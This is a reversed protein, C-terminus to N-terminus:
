YTLRYYDYTRRDRHGRPRLRNDPREGASITPELRVPAHLRKHTNHTNDPLPGQSSSIVRVSSDHRSQHTTTHSRSVEDVLFGYGANPWLAVSFFFRLNLERISIKYNHVELCLGIRECNTSM